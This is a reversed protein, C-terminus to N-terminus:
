GGEKLKKLRELNSAISGGTKQKVEVSDMNSELDQVDDNFLLDLNVDAADVASSVGIKKGFKDLRENLNSAMKDLAASLEGTVPAGTQAVAAPAADLKAQLQDREQRAKHVEDQRDRLIESFQDRSSAVLAEVADPPILGSSEIARRVADAVIAAIDAAKIIKLEKRGQSQLEELTTTTSHQSLAKKVDNISDM